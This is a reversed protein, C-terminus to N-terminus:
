AESKEINVATSINFFSEFWLVDFCKLINVDIENAYIKHDKTQIADYVKNIM